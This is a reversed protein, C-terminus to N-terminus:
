PVSMVARRAYGRKNAAGVVLPSYLDMLTRM